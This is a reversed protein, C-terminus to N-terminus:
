RKREKETGRERRASALKGMREKKAGTMCAILGKLGLILM